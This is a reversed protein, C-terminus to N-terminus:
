PCMNIFKNYFYIRIANLKKFTLMNYKGIYFQEKKIAQCTSNFYLNTHGQQFNIKSSKKLSENQFM